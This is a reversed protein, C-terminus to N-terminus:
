SQAWGRVKAYQTWTWAGMLNLGTFKKPLVKRAGTVLQHEPVTIELVDAAAADPQAAGVVFKVRVVAGANLQAVWARRLFRRRFADGSIVGLLLLPGGPAPVPSALPLPLTHSTRLGGRRQQMRDLLDGRSSALSAVGTPAM